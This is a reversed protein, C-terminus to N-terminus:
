VVVPEALVRVTLQVHLAAIGIYRPLSVPGLQRVPLPHPPAPILAPRQAIEATAKPPYGSANARASGGSREGLRAILRACSGSDASEESTRSQSASAWHLFLPYLLPPEYMGIRGFYFRSVCL